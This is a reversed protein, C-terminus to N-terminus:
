INNMLLANKHNEHIEDFEENDNQNIVIKLMEMM